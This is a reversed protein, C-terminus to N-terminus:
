HRPEAPESVGKVVKAKLKNNKTKVSVDALSVIGVLRKERDLVPLRRIQKEEMLKAAEEVRQDEFGFVVEPTMVESVHTAEPDLGEAVARIAIDRDTLMGRLRDGDCVPIAGVDLDRMKKAGEALGANPAIVEVQPTMIERLQM